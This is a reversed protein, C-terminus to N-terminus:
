KVWVFFTKTRWCKNLNKFLQTHSKEVTGSRITTLLGCQICCLFSDVSVGRCYLSWSTTYNIQSSKPLTKKSWHLFGATGSLKSTLRKDGISPPIWSISRQLYYVNQRNKEERHLMKCFIIRLVVDYKLQLIILVLILGYNNKFHRFYMFIHIVFVSCATYIMKCHKIM